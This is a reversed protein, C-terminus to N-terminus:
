CIQHWISSKPTRYKHHLKEEQTITKAAKPLESRYHTQDNNQNSLTM